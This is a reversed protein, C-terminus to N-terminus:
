SITNDQLKDFLLLFDELKIVVLDDLYRKNCVHLDLLTIKGEETNKLAQKWKTSLWKPYYKEEFEKCEISFLGAGDRVDRGGLIGFRIGKFLEAIKKEHRKARNRNKKSM